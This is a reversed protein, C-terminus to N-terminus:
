GAHVEASLGDCAQLDEQGGASAELQYDDERLSASADDRAAFSAHFQEDGHLLGASGVGHDFM